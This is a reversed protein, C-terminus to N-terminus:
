GPLFTKFTQRGGNRDHYCEGDYYTGNITPQASGCLSGGKSTNANYNNGSAHSTEVPLSNDHTEPVTGGHTGSDEEEEDTAPEHRAEEYGSAGRTMHNIQKQNPTYTVMIITSAPIEGGTPRFTNTTRPTHLCIGTM